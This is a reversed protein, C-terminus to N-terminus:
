DAATSERKYLIVMVTKVVTMTIKKNRQLTKNGNDGAVNVM